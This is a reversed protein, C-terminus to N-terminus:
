WKEKMSQLAEELAPELRCYKRGGGKRVLRPELSYLVLMLRAHLLAAHGVVQCWGPMECTSHVSHLRPAAIQALLVLGPVGTDGSWGM